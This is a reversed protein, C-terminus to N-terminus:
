DKPLYRSIRDRIVEAGVGIGLSDSGRQVIMVVQGLDNVVPGGSQGGIFGADIMTFPGSLGEIDMRVNSVHAIRFMADDLGAGYGMSAVEDGRDPGKEAIAVAPYDLNSARVIMLDKREDKFVKYTPTGDALVKEGDCHAATLVYKKQTDIVFGTCSGQLETGAVIEVYVISKQLKEAVSTWKSAANTPVLVFLAALLAILVRKM